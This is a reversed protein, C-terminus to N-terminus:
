LILTHVQLDTESLNVNIQTVTRVLTDRYLACEPDISQNLISTYSAICTYVRYLNVATTYVSALVFALFTM